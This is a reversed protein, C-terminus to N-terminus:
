LRGDRGALGTGTVATTDTDTDTATVTATGPDTDTQAGTGGIVAHGGPSQRTRPIYPIIREIYRSVM